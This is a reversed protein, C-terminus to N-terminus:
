FQFNIKNKRMRKPMLKLPPSLNNDNRIFVIYTMEDIEIEINTRGELLLFKADLDSLLRQTTVLKGRKFGNFVNNTDFDYQSVLYIKCNSPNSNIEVPINNYKRFKKFNSKAKEEEDGGGYEIRSAIIEYKKNGRVLSNPIFIKYPIKINGDFGDTFRLSDEILTLLEIPEEFFLANEYSQNGKEKLYIMNISESYLYEKIYFNGYVISPYYVDYYLGRENNFTDIKTFNKYNYQENIINNEFSPLHYPGKDLTHNIFLLFDKGVYYDAYRLTDIKEREHYTNLWEKVFISDPYNPTQSKLFLSSLLLILSLILKKSKVSKM